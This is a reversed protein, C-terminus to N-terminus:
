FNDISYHIPFRLNMNIQEEQLCIGQVTQFEFYWQINSMLNTLFM